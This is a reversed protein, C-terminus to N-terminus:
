FPSLLQSSQLEYSASAKLQYITVFPYCIMGDSKHTVYFM